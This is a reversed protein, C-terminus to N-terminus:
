ADKEPPDADVVYSDIIRSRDPQDFSGSTFVRFHRRIWTMVGRRYWRRCVPVLLSLGLADTLLGPTLLLAGAVFIMAADLLSETPLQGTALERRIRQLTRFGQARALMTGAVGTVVVVALAVWWHTHEALQLLLILEVLPVVIFLVLLRFLM